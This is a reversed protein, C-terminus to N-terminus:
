QRARVSSSAKTRQWHCGVRQAVRMVAATTMALNASVLGHGSHAARVDHLAVKVLRRTDKRDCRWAALLAMDGDGFLKPWRHRIVTLSQAIDGASALVVPPFGSPMGVIFVAIVNFKSVYATVNRAPIELM